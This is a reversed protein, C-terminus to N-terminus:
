QPLTTTSTSFSDAAAILATETVRLFKGGVNIGKRWRYITEHNIDYKRALEADSGAGTRELAVDLLTNVARRLDDDM